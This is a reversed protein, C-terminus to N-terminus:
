YDDDLVNRGVVTLGAAVADKWATTLSTWSIGDSCTVDTTYGASSSVIRYLLAAHGGANPTDDMQDGNTPLIFSNTQSSVSCPGSADANFIAVVLSEANVITVAGTATGLMVFPATTLDETYATTGDKGSDYAASAHLGSVELAFAVWDDTAALGFQYNQSGGASAHILYAYISLGSNSYSTRAAGLSEGGSQNSVTTNSTCVFVLVARGATVTGAGTSATTGSGNNSFCQHVTIAM